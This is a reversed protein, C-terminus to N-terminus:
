KLKLSFLVYKIVDSNSLSLPCSISVAPEEANGNLEENYVGESVTEADAVLIQSEHPLAGELYISQPPEEPETPEQVFQFISVNWQLCAYLTSLKM